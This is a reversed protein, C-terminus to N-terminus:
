CHMDLMFYCSLTIELVKEKKEKKKKVDLQIIGKQKVSALAEKLLVVCRM